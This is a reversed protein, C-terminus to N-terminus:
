QGRIFQLAEDIDRLSRFPPADRLQRALSWAVPPRINVVLLEADQLRCLRHLRQLWDYYAQDLLVVRALDYIVWDAGGAEMALQVRELCDEAQRMDFGDDPEVLLARDGLPSLHLTGCGDM